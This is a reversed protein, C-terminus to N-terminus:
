VGEMGYRKTFEDCKKIDEPKVSSSCRKLAKAFDNTSVPPLQLSPLLGKAEFEQFSMEEAGNEGPSCPLYISQNTQPNVMKKFHTVFKLVRAAQYRADQVLIKM